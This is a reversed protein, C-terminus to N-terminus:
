EKLLRNLELYVEDFSSNPTLRTVVKRITNNRDTILLLPEHGANRQNIQLSCNSEPNECYSLVAFPLPPMAQAGNPQAMLMTGRVLATMSLAHHRFNESVGHLLSFYTPTAPHNLDGIYVLQPVGAKPIFNLSAGPGATLVLQQNVLDRDQLAIDSQSKATLSACSLLLVAIFRM